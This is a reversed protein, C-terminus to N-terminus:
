AVLRFLLHASYSDSATMLLGSCNGAVPTGVVVVTLGLM